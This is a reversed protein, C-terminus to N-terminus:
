DVLFRIKSCQDHSEKDFVLLTMLVAQFCSVVYSIQNKMMISISIVIQKTLYILVYKKRLFAKYNYSTKKRDVWWQKSVHLVEM